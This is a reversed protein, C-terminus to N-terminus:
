PPLPRRAAAAERGLAVGIIQAATGANSCIFAICVIHIM